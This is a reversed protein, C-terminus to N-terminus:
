FKKKYGTFRKINKCPDTNSSCSFRKNEIQTNAWSVISDFEHVALDMGRDQIIETIFKTRLMDLAGFIGGHGDAASYLLSMVATLTYDHRSPANKFGKIYYNMKSTMTSCSVGSPLWELNSDWSEVDSLVSESLVSEKKEKLILMDLWADPLLELEDVNPVTLKDVQEGSPSYWVYRAESPHFSPPATLYRHSNQIIDIGELGSIFSLNDPVRFLLTRGNDTNEHRSSYWTAPLVGFTEELALFTEQGKKKGYADVDLGIVNEPLRLCINGGRDIWDNFNDDTPTGGSRGTFGKPPASKSKPPLPLIGQWGAELYSILSEQFPKVLEEKSIM